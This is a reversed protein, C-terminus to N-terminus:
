KYKSHLQDIAESVGTLDFKFYVSGGSFLNLELLMTKSSRMNKVIYESDVFLVNKEFIGNFIRVDEVKDDWKVRTTYLFGDGYLVGDELSLISNLMLAVMDINKIPDYLIVLRGAMNQYPFSLKETPFVISSSVYWTKEGTMEDQAYLLTWECFVTSVAFLILLFVFVKKGMGFVEM